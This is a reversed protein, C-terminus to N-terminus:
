FNEEIIDAIQSFSLGRSDNDSALYGDGYDGHSSVGAWKQVSEPLIASTGDMDYLLRYSDQEWEAVGVKAALDCLVGLCCFEDGTSRLGGTGQVYEGSRLATLWQAKIEPNM